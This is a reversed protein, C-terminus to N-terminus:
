RTKEYIFCLLASYFCFRPIYLHFNFSPLTLYLLTFTFIFNFTFYRLISSENM